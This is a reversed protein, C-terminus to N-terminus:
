IVHTSVKNISQLGARVDNLHPRWIALSDEIQKLAQENGKLLNPNAQLAKQQAM